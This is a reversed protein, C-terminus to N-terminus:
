CRNVGGRPTKVEPMGNVLVIKVLSSCNTAVHDYGQCKYCTITPTLKSFENDTDKGKNEVTNGKTNVKHTSTQSQFHNLCSSSNPKITQTHCKSISSSKTADLDQVLAYAKELKTIKRAL